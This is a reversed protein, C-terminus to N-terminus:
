AFYQGGNINVTTGTVFSSQPAALWAVAGAVDAPTGARQVPISAITEAKSEATTFTDHFPTAEIFGPAVANVTIGLAAVEKSLGRTFGFIAAKSTGYAVAGPHGGNHGALSAVNIIRGWGTNMFPLAHHTVLFVSDLNVAMVKNWLAFDMQGIPSRQILGGINNVVVDISGFRTGIDSIVDRVDTESTADLKVATLETGSAEKIALVLEEDPEHSLYTIALRAGARALELSIERGIGVGGGTVLVNKNTLFDTM